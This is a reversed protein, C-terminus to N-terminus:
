RATQRTGNGFIGWELEVDGSNHSDLAFIFLCLHEVGSQMIWCSLVEVFVRVFLYMCLGSPWGPM